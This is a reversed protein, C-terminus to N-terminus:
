TREPSRYLARTESAVRAFDTVLEEPAVPVIAGAFGLLWRVFTDTRRIQFTRLAPQGPVPQGLRGAAASTGTSRALRVTASYGDGGGLEWAQRSRAHDRLVFTSPIAYDPTGPSKANAVPDSLRSLRYNKVTPDDPSAAALYWHQNLFFLGFPEVVRSATQDRNISHYTFTLRKRKALAHSLIAFIKDDDARTRPALQITEASTSVGDLPLDHGLKRAASRAAAALAPIGLSQAKASAAAIALLEDPEFCLSPLSRYGERDTPRRSGPRTSNLLSLYPLYFDARALQYGSEGSSHERTEIPIGFERLEDKDREFM